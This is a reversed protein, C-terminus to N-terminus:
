PRRGNPAPACSKNHLSPTCLRASSAIAAFAACDTGCSISCTRAASAGCWSLIVMTLNSRFDHCCTRDDDFDRASRHDLAAVFADGRDHLGVARDDSRPAVDVLGDQRARGVLRDLRHGEDLAAGDLAEAEAVLVDRQGAGRMIALRAM